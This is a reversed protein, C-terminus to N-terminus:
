SWQEGPTQTDDHVRAAKPPQPGTDLGSVDDMLRARLGSPREAALIEANLERITKQARPDDHGDKAITM